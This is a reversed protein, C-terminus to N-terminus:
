RPTDAPLDAPPLRSMFAEPDVDVRTIRGHGVTVNGEGVDHEAVVEFVLRRGDQEVLRATAHVMAGV